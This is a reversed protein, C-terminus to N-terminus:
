KIRLNSFYGETDSGTWLAVRGRSEGLKLDNVILCPQDAGNVYLKAKTGSVVVKVRTWAKEEIDVYSEYVGPNEQRLRAWPFDPFSSYQASHNRRLQDDARGNAFRLYINEFKEGGGQIRFAVGVFGRSQSNSGQRPMGVVGFEISGDQFDTGQVIALSEGGSPGSSGMTTDDNLMHLARRGKYEAINAKVKVAEARKESVAKIELGDLSDLVMSQVAQSPKTPRQAILASACVVAAGICVMATKGTKKLLASRKV